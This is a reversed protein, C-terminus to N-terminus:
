RPSFAELECFLRDVERELVKLLHAARELDGSRGIKELEYATQSVTSAGLNASSGKLTHAHDGLSAADRAALARRIDKLTTPCDTKFVQVLEEFLERDGELRELAAALDVANAPPNKPMSEAPASPGGKKDGIQDLLALLEQTRIPKTLYSDMGAGICKEEDGKMAHATMAVIPIHQGTSKEKQRIAKTAEWGNMEPMQIDMLVLDYTEEELAALAKKGNAAVTVTHGYKELLRLAVLQNVANDEVLLIQLRNRSERLSHRTILAPAAASKPRTGLATLIADLLEAQQVPKTLYAAVGLERCRVADGRQGASSLMMITAARWDPNRKIAEALAFGDMEPMQADLLILPFTRGIGKGEKLTVIAKAGSDVALPSTHWNELMKLLIQRNTANDDVVLVRMDRLTEPDRPVVTRAALKQLSFNATFHFRSGKDLESEVWIRGGMLTALRSSITLGLGTGGYKRTMSGDAQRFAEFIADQQDAPIGIGTDTVVFHLKISEETRSEAQVRLVVEGQETFKIANGVLNVIIQRLRGPDGILGDPVDPEIEFALELGKQHARLSLTKMTDGLCNGLNFDIADIELKGAEIKSYDLIDNILSLLSDASVKAVNLYNRQETDLETDLVLETMGMIGNMPTRIEHSMNALFESKARSNAEAAEKARQMAEEARKRETVDQFLALRGNIKGEIALPVAFIEVDVVTGDSRTRRTVEHVQEGLEPAFDDRLQPNTILDRLPQGIAEQQGYLFLHEFAPNCMQVCFQSDMAVIAVPNNEILSNLFTKQNELAVEAQKREAVEKQLERTREDVRLELEDHAKRLAVDRQEIRDLMSNFQDFLVGIEDNSRKTARLSYNEEASVSEATNALERIPGSIVRQLRSSLLFAIALSVLLVLFAIVAFRIMRDNLDGLDSDIFITGISEAKYSIPQFLVMRRGEISIGYKQLSPPSFDSSTGDRSYKAFVRGDKDYISADVVHPKARLAALIEQASISAGFALAATSNSGVMQASAALDQTKTRLFTARDYLTLAGSAVLLAVTCAVMVIRQLKQRISSSGYFHM